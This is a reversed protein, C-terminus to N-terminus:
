VVPLPEALPPMLSSVLYAEVLKAFAAATGQRPAGENNAIAFLNTGAM